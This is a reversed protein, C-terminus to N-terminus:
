EGREIIKKLFNEINKELQESEQYTIKHDNFFEQRESLSCDKLFTKLVETLLNAQSSQSSRYQERLEKTVRIYLTKHDISYAAIFSQNPIKKYLLIENESFYAKENIQDYFRDVSIMSNALRSPDIFFVLGRKKKLAFDRAVKFNESTPHFQSKEVEEKHIGTHKGIDAHKGKKLRGERFLKSIRQKVDQDNSSKSDSKLFSSAGTTGWYIIKSDKKLQKVETHLKGYTIEKIGEETTVSLVKEEPIKVAEQKKNGGDILVIKKLKSKSTNDCTGKENSLNLVSNYIKEIEKNDFKLDNEKTPDTYQKVVSKCTEFLNNKLFFTDDNKVVCDNVIIEDKKDFYKLEEEPTLAQINWKISKNDSAIGQMCCFLNILLCCGWFTLYRM